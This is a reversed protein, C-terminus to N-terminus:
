DDDGSNGPNDEDNHDPDNGHGKDHDGDDDGGSSGGGGGGGGGDDDDSSDGGGTPVGSDFDGTFINVNIVIINIAIFTGDPQLIGIVEVETGPPLQPPLGTCNNIVVINGNILLRQDGYTQVFGSLTVWQAGQKIITIIQSPTPQADSGDDDDDGLEEQETELEIKSKVFLKVKIKTGDPQKWWKSNVKVKVDLKVEEQAAIPSFNVFSTNVASLTNTAAVAAPDASPTTSGAALTVENGAAVALSPSVLNVGEVFDTGEIVEWVLSADNVPANSSNVLIRQTVYAGQCLTAIHINSRFRLVFINNASPTGPTGSPVATVSATPSATVTLTAAATTTIVPTGEAEPTGEGTAAPTTEDDDDEAAPTGPTTTTPGAVVDSSNFVFISTTVIAVLGLGTVIVLVTVILSIFWVKSLGLIAMSTGGNIAGFWSAMQSQFAAQAASSAQFHTRTMQEGLNLLEPLDELEPVVAETEGQLLRDIQESLLDALEQENM